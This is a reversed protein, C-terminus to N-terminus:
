VLALNRCLPRTGAALPAVLDNLLSKTTGDAPLKGFYPPRFISGRISYDM